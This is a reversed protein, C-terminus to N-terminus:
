GREGEDTKVEIVEGAPVINPIPRICQIHKRAYNRRLQVAALCTGLCIALVLLIRLPHGAGCANGKCYIPIHGRSV